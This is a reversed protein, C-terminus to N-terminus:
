GRLLSSALALRPPLDPAAGPPLDDVDFWALRDSEASGVLPAGDPVVFLHAVDLHATCRGYTTALEHRQLDLPAGDLALRLLPGLGTEEAAERLAAETFSADGVELHGGPQLWMGLKRHAVLVTRRGSEDVVFATTTLHEPTGDRDLASGEFAGSSLALRERFLDRLQAQGADRPHLAALEADAQAPTM